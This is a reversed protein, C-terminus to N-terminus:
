CLGNDFYFKAVKELYENMLLNAMAPRGTAIVAVDDAFQVISVAPNNSAPIDAVFAKFLAPALAAGQPLGVVAVHISSTVGDMRVVFFRDTLYIWLCRGLNSPIGWRTLKEM